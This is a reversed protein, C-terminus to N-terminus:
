WGSEGSASAFPQGLGSDLGIDLPRDDVEIFLRSLLWLEAFLMALGIPMMAYGAVYDHFIGTSVPQWSSTLYMGTITIRVINSAVAIPIASALVIFKEWLPREALLAVAASLAFFVMLMRLGSCAEAVNVPAGEVVIVNGEAVATMGLTQMVFCSSLTGIRQLPAQMASQLTHPLPIMFLLFAVSPWAWRFANAGGILVVMGLLTPILSLYDFWEFYYFVAVMRLAVGFLVLGAGWFSPRLQHVQLLDRRLWLLVLSFVPVLYGHSYEPEHAWRGAMYVLAPWYSAVTLGGLVLLAFALLGRPAHDRDNGTVSIALSELLLGFLSAESKDSSPVFCVM